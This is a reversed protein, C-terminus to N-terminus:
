QASASRAAQVIELERRVSDSRPGNPDEKLCMKLEAAARDWQQEKEFARAAVRHAFAHPQDLTHARASTAIAEEFRGQMFQSYALLVTAVPDSPDLNFVKTLAAEAEGFDSNALSMRAWNLYALAFHDNLEIAKELADRECAADGLRAYVVGLNNYAGPFAPYISVAKNLQELAKKVDQKRLSELARDFEKRAKAPISLESVTVLGSGSSDRFSNTSHNFRQRLEAAGVPATDLDIQAAAPGAILLVFWLARSKM